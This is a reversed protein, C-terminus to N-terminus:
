GRNASQFQTREDMVPQLSFRPARMLPSPAGQPSRPVNAEMSYVAWAYAILAGDILLHAVWFASWSRAILLSFLAAVALAVLVERRRKRAMTPNRPAALPSTSRAGMPSGPLGFGANSVMRDRGWAWVWGAWGLAIVLIVLFLM